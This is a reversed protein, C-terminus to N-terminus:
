DVPPRAGRFLQKERLSPRVAAPALKVVDLREAMRTGIERQLVAADDYTAAARTFHLRVARPDFAGPDPDRPLDIAM